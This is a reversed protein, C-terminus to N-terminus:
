RLRYKREDVLQDDCYVLLKQQAVDITARVYEYVAEAPMRFKESFINLIRDSRIFRMVHYRGRMPKPLPTRPAKEAAPFRLVVRSAALSEQPTKGGLKSYRYRSNHRQEYLLSERKLDKVSEMWVRDLFKQRWHDNFKEVVGNRWPERMPIFVPEVGNLLCLRILKGMGRPHTPSGYFVMENDVQQYKPLGLRMWIAWIASVADKKGEVLPDIGCRGTALDVSHLSYFRVPGKLYCPGVLDSQHVDGPKVAKLGPYKKGKPQYRGTRRHTLGHRALIRNITRVSPLPMVELEEMRWRIAQAGCFLDQNYLELRILKVIEEIEGPTRYPSTHPSRSRDQYWGSKGGGGSHRNLWKYFWRESYGMSSWITTPREGALYRRIAEKRAREQKSEM